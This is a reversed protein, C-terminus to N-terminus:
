LDMTPKGSNMWQNKRSLYTDLLYGAMKGSLDILMLGKNMWKQWSYVRWQSRPNGMWTCCSAGAPAGCAHLEKPNRPIEQAESSKSGDVTSNVHTSHSLHPDINPLNTIIIQYAIYITIFAHSHSKLM